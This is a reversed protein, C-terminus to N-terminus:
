SKEPVPIFVPRISKRAEFDDGADGAGDRRDDCYGRCCSRARFYSARGEDSEVIAALEPEDARVENRSARHAIRLEGDAKRWQQGGRCAQIRQRVADFRIERRAEIWGGSFLLEAIRVEATLKRAM